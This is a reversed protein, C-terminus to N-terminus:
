AKAHKQGKRLYRILLVVLLAGFLMFFFAPYNAKLIQAAEEGYLAALFGILSYRV